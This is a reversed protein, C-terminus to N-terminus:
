KNIKIDKNLIFKKNKYIISFFYNKFKKMKINFHSTDMTINIQSKTYLFNMFDNQNLFIINSKKKIFKLFKRHANLRLKENKWGYSYRQSFPHDLYGFARKNKYSILFSKKYNDIKDSLPHIDGHMMCQQNNLLVKIEKSYFGSRFSIDKPYNKNIGGILGKIKLDHLVNYTFHPTHHFPAVVFETNLDLEKLKKISTNIQLLCTEHNHGFNVLHDHSHSLIAGNKKIISKLFNKDAKTLISTLIALSFPVKFHNYLQNIKKASKINEDCDLRMTVLGSYSSPIESVIPFNPLNNKYSSIFKEIITVDFGDFIGVDRNIFLICCKNLQHLSVFTILKNNIKITGINQKKNKCFILSKVSWIDNKGTIKGYGYNNWEDEFDYRLLYRENHNPYFKGKKYNIKIFSEYKEKKELNNFYIKKKDKNLLKLKQFSFKELFFNSFSGLYIVKFNIKQSLEFIKKEQTEKLNSVFIISNEFFKKEITNILVIDINLLRGIHQKLYNSLSTNDTTLLKIM